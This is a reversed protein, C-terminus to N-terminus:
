KKIDVASLQKIKKLSEEPSCFEKRLIFQQGYWSSYDDSQEMSVVLRGAMLDKAKKFEAPSVLEEKM